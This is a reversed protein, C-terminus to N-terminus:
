KGFYDLWWFIDEKSKAEDLIPNLNVSQYGDKRIDSVVHDIDKKNFGVGLLYPFVALQEDSLSLIREGVKRREEEDWKIDTNSFKKNEININLKRSNKELM